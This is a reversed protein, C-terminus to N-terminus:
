KIRYRKRYLLIIIGAAIVSILIFTNYGEIPNHPPYNPPDVKDEGCVGGFFKCVFIDEIGNFTEDYAGTTTNFDSSYTEGVIYIGGKAGVAIEPYLEDDISSGIYTSYTLTSGNTSLKSLYADSAGNYTEDYAGNTTNFDSSATTGTFYASGSSDIAISLGDDLGSGGVYTSYTLVSGNASLKCVFADGGGGNYIEDFAGTTTNFDSSDTDGVIYASGDSDVVISRGVDSNTGGIFTSNVLTSGDPSLKCVFIEGNGNYTEDFAGSTTNFDSSTTFGTVYAYGDSDVAISNGYDNSTGGLYTSYTLTSGDASLKCVFAEMVGNFTEDFAGSTTNFDSSQTEGVIYACGDSDVTISSGFDRVGTGGIFTSYILSSGDASLKSVFVDEVGGNYTEDFAGSTINFDNSETHGTIYACGYSDVVISRGYDVDTGGIFTSYVLTSGDASLKSVFIDGNGNFTEDFAGSTTNFNISDTSGTIYVSCDSDVAISAEVDYDTGGIFTSYKLDAAGAAAIPINTLKELSELYFQDDYDKNTDNVLNDTGPDNGVSRGCLLFIGGNLLLFLLFNSFIQRQKKPKTKYREM